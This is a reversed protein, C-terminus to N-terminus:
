ETQTPLNEKPQRHILSLIIYLVFAFPVVAAHLFPISIASVVILVLQPWATAINWKAPMLKIFSIRSVMFWCLLGIVAYIVWKNHLFNGLGWPNYWALLPLSAVFIGVAPIPMGTFFGKHGGGSINFRALRLAGFCAILFAPAMGLMSVDMANKESMLADWLFKYFIMSPAVGFSVVDALSDLDKGIPSFVNLARAVFGDLLDCIAAIAIFISGLYIQEAGYVWNWTPMGGELSMSTYPQATLIYAIAICGCFLNGLTLLNPLHKMTHWFYPNDPFTDSCAYCQFIDYTVSHLVWSICNIQYHYAFWRAIYAWISVIFKLLKM